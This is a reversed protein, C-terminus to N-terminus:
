RNMLFNVIFGLKHFPNGFMNQHSPEWYKRSCYSTKMTLKGRQSVASSRTQQGRPPPGLPPDESSMTLFTVQGRGILVLIVTSFRRFCFITREKLRQWESRRLGPSVGAGDEQHVFAPAELRDQEQSEGNGSHDDEEIKVVMRRRELTTLKVTPLSIWRSRYYRKLQGLFQELSRGLSHEWCTAGPITPWSIIWSSVIFKAFEM